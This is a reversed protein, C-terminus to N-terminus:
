GAYLLRKREDAYMQRNYVSVGYEDIYSIVRFFRIFYGDPEDNNPSIRYIEEFFVGERSDAAATVYYSHM